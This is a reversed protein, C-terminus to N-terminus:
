MSLAPEDEEQLLVSGSAAPMENLRSFCGPGASWGRAGEYEACGVVPAADSVPPSLKVTCGRFPCNEMRPSSICANM